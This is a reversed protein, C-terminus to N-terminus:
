YKIIVKSRQVCAELSAGSFYNGTLLLHPYRRLVEKEFAALKEDHGVEFQPIAQKALFSALYDPAANIKLQYKLADLAALVPDAVEERVMATLRTHPEEGFIDSDWVMGLLSERERSPVLYGFGRKKLYQGRFGLHVVWISRHPLDLPVGTLRSIEYAPLASIIRDSQFSDLSDIKCDTVIEIPLQKKVEFILRELGGQLSILGSPGKKKNKFWGKLVSGERKEWEWLTRFCSRISLKRIDGAFIGLAMPDFFMEALRSGFRRSAFDYISEDEKESRSAFPERLLGM